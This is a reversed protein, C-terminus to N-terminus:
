GKDCNECKFPKLGQHRRMHQALNTKQSFGRGCQSCLFPKEGTHTRMHEKLTCLMLFAKSCVNCRHKKENKHSDKHCKLSEESPFSLGCIECSIGNKRSHMTLVHNELYAKYRFERKCVKCVHKINDTEEHRLIHASLSTQNKFKRLCYSCQHSETKSNINKEHKRIHTKLAAETKFQSLCFKCVHLLSTNNSKHENSHVHQHERWDNPTKFKRNCQVCEVENKVTVLKTKNMKEFVKKYKNCQTQKLHNEYKYKTALTLGCYCTYKKGGISLSEEEKFGATITDCQTEDDYHDPFSIDDDFNLNIEEKVPQEPNDPVTSDTLKSFSTDAIPYISTDQILVNKKEFSDQSVCNLINSTELSIYNSLKENADENEDKISCQKDINSAEGRSISNQYINNLITESNLCRRKFANAKCMVSECEACVQKPLSDEFKVNIDATFALIEFLNYNEGDTKTFLSKMDTSQVLCVRCIRDFMQVSIEM